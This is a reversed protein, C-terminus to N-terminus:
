PSSSAGVKTIRLSVQQGQPCYGLYEFEIQRAQVFEQFAKFEGQQWGPYGFYEDFQLVTGPQIRDGLLDFVTKTSSYLDADLHLFAIPGPHEKAWVPVSENFWGKYLKVNPRVAPLGTMDFTGKPFGTRWNEPLGEFSDFGHITQETKSAIHNITRGMYVGFECYLKDKLEPAISELGHDFMAFKDLFAPTQPMQTQVFTATEQAAQLIMQDSINRDHARLAEQVAAQVDNREQQQLADMVAYYVLIRLRDRAYDKALPFGWAGVATLVVLIGAAWLLKKM